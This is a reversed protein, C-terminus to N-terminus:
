SLAALLDAAEHRASAEDGPHYFRLAELLAARFEKRAAAYDHHVRAPDDGWRAAIERIPLGQEFRLRLLEVRRSAEPGGQEARRAQVRAAERMVELAWARDFVRSLRATDEDGANLQAGKADLLRHDRSARHEFTRAVNRAVSYLLARFSNGRAPDAKSLVGGPKLCEVFVDQVADDVDGRRAGGRWRAQLYARVPSEYRTVFTRRQEEDGAGAAQVMTWCTADTSDM